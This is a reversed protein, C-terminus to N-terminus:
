TQMNILRDTQRDCGAAWDATCASITCDESHATVLVGTKRLLFEHRQTFLILARSHPADNLSFGGGLFFSTM